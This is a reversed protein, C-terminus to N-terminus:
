GVEDNESDEELAAESLCEFMLNKVELKGWSTKGEIREKLKKWARAFVTV